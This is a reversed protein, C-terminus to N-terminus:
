SGGEVFAAAPGQELSRGFSRDASQTGAIGAHHIERAEVWAAVTQAVMVLVAVAAVAAVLEAVAV